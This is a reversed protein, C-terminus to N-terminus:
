VPMNILEKYAEVIKNRIQITAEFTVSAKNRAIMVDSLSVNNDGYDFRMQLNSSDKQFTNVDNIAKTLMDNFSLNTEKQIVTSKGINRAELTMSKIENNLNYIEM